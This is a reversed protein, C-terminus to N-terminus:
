ESVVGRRAKQLHNDVEKFVDAHAAVALGEALEALEDFAASRGSTEPTESARDNAKELMWVADVFRGIARFLFTSDDGILFTVTSEGDRGYAIGITPRKKTPKRAGAGGGPARSPPRQITPSTEGRDDHAIGTTPRKKQQAKM